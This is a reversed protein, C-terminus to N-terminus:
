VEATFIGWRDPSFKSGFGGGVHDQHVRINTAPMKLPEAMQGPIGSLNQTSIHTFLHDPDTWESISGHSELCCHTIVAIGYLGESVVDAESFAKDPDGITQGAAKQYNSPVKNAAESHVTATRLAALVDDTAGDEKLGKLTDESPKDTIGYKQIDGVMQRAPMQNDLMDSIDDMSLPGQEQASGKPPEGDSVLHPLQQYKVNIARIADEATTEDVAAVAVIEDGAWHINSGPGQVIHVAKVGPMKEAASTDISLVKAHPYPSRLVKGYLMEPRHVDYTYKAQGSVKAPSDVRTVRTGILTRHQADPWAYDPM